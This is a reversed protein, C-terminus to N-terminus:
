IQISGDENEGEMLSIKLSYKGLFGLMSGGYGKKYINWAKQPDCSDGWYQFTSTYGSFGGNPTLYINSDPDVKSVGPLVCTRVLKGDIYVDMSRGYASVILNVWKQLPVNAVNCTNVVASSDDTPQSDAGPYVEQSIILNNQTAGLVVSPCPENLGSMRGFIVKPEGYRYNWDDIFFWISYCFNSTSATTNSTDLDSSQITTMSKADILGSLTSKSNTIYRILILLLIVVVIILIINKANM